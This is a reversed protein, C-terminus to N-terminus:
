FRYESTDVEHEELTDYFLEEELEVCIRLIVQQESKTLISFMKKLLEQKSYGDALNIFGNFVEIQENRTM